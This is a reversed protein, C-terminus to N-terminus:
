LLFTSVRGVLAVIWLQTKKRCRALLEFDSPLILKGEKSGPMDGRSRTSKLEIDLGTTLLM